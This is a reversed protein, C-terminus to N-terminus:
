IKCCALQFAVADTTQTAKGAGFYSPALFRITLRHKGASFEPYLNTQAPLAVRVLHCPTAPNLPTLYFGNDAATPQLPTSDRTLQM